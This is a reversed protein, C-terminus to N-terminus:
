LSNALLAYQAAVKQRVDPELDSSVVAVYRKYTVFCSFAYETEKNGAANLRLCKAGPVDNPAGIPDYEAGASDILGNMFARAADADRLRHLLTSDVVASRDLGTDQILRQRTPQDDAAQLVRHPGYVAFRLPDPTRDTRDEVVARALLGEPDVPLEDLEAIPTPEFTELLAVEASLTKDVWSVLDASEAKPRQVYLSIVFEGRALFAGVSPVGPRWHLYADSFKTSSLKQNEPSVGIDADELERAAAAAAGQDPFRLLVTTVATADQVPLKEGAPDARDAGAAVYGTVFKRNQLVPRSVEALLGITDDVTTLVSSTRGHSLSPDIDISPIVADAMRIGELVAGHGAPDVDYAHRDVEYKGVELKRVDPEGAVPAGPISCGALLGAITMTSLCLAIRSMRVM